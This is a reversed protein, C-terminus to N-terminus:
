TLSELCLFTAQATNIKNTSGITKSIIDQYGALDLVMKVASGAILSTGKSAPKLLVRTASYKKEVQYPITKENMPLTLINKRAQTKAKEVAIQVENGKAVGFGIRGKKDGIVVAARFRLRRGGKVVRTIRNVELVKEEFDDKKEFKDNM